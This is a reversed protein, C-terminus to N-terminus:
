RQLTLTSHNWINHGWSLLPTFAYCKFVSNTSTVGNTTSLTNNRDLRVLMLSLTSGPTPTSRAFGPLQNFPVALEVSYGQDRDTSDNPTGRVKVGIRLGEINQTPDMVPGWENPKKSQLSDFICSSPSVILEWYTRLRPEPLIFMEVCDDRYVPDDRPQVPAVVDADACDFAFYLANTDWLIRYTTHCETAVNTENFPYSNTFTVAAAWAAEDLNGDIVPPTAVHPVAVSPPKPWTRGSFAQLTQRRISDLRWPEPMQGTKIAEVIKLMDGTRLYNAPEQGPTDEAARLGEQVFEYLNSCATLRAQTTETIATELSTFRAEATPASDAALSVWAVGCTLVILLTKM